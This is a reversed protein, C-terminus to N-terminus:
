KKFKSKLPVLFKGTRNDAKIPNNVQKVPRITHGANLKRNSVKKYAKM